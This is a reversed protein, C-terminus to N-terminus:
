DMPEAMWPLMVAETIRATLYRPAEAELSRVEAAFEAVSWHAAGVFTRRTLDVLDAIFRDRSGVNDVSYGIEWEIAVNMGALALFRMIAYASRDVAGARLMALTVHSDDSDPYIAVVIGDPTTVANPEALALGDSAPSQRGFVKYTKEGSDLVIVEFAHPHIAYTGPSLVAEQVGQQGGAALFAEVDTFCGFRVDYPATLLESQMGIHSTVVGVCGDPIVVMDHVDISRRVAAYRKSPLLRPQVGREGQKVVQSIRGLREVGIKGDPVTVYLWCLAGVVALAIAGIIGLWFVGDM